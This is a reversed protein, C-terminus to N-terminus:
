RLVRRGVIRLDSPTVSRGCAATTFPQNIVCHGPAAGFWRDGHREWLLNM